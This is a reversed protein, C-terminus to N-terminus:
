TGSFLGRNAEFLQVLVDVAGRVCAKDRVTEHYVIFGRAKAVPDPFLRVMEPRGEALLCPIVGIGGGAAISNAAVETNDVQITATASGRHEELWRPGAVKHLASVYRILKHRGLDAPTKPHGHEELYSKSAYVAWGLEFAYRCVLAPDEPRFMRLALDAEGKALDVARNEGALEVVLSPHQERAESLLRALTAGLGSPCSVTVALSADAKAARVAGSARTVEARITEAALLMTRGEQTWAFQQGGRVLLRAGVSDELAALRRSITSGDVGLDRAAAAVSGGSALALLVKFDNWDPEKM